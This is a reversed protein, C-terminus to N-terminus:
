GVQDAVLNFSKSREYYKMSFVPIDLVKGIDKLRDSYIKPCNLGIHFKSPKVVLEPLGPTSSPVSLRYEQEFSWSSHKVNYLMSAIQALPQAEIGARVYGQPQLVRAFSLRIQEDMLDSIDSRFESYQVPYVLGRLLKNQDLTKDYEVCFGKHNNTYHAWMPMSQIGCGSFSCISIQSPLLAMNQEVIKNYSDPNRRNEFDYFACGCDFPDNLNKPNSLFIKSKELTALKKQDMHEEDDFGILSYFRTLTNPVYERAIACLYLYLELRGENQVSSLSQVAAHYNFTPNRRKWEDLSIEEPLNM